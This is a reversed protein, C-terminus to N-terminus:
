HLIKRLLLTILGNGWWAFAGGLTFGCADCAGLMWLLTAGVLAASLGWCTVVLAHCLASIAGDAKFVRLTTVVPICILLALYILVADSGSLEAVVTVYQVLANGAIGLAVGGIFYHRGGESLAARQAAHVPALQTLIDHTVAARAALTLEADVVPGRAGRVGYGVAFAALAALLTRM